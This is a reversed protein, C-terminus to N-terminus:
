YQRKKRADAGARLPYCPSTDKARNQVKNTMHIQACEGRGPRLERMWSSLANSHIGPYFEPWELSAHNKNMKKAMSKGKGLIDKGVM